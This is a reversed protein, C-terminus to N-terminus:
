TKPPKGTPAWRNVDIHSLPSVVTVLDGVETKLKEALVRGMIIPPPSGDEPRVALAEVSGEVMHKHLDLVNTVTGPDIGKIAVGALEGRGATVLMEVFVFPQVALVDPDIQRAIEMKEAYD